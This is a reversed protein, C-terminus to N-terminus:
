SERSTTRSPRAARAAGSSAPRTSRRPVSSRWPARAGLRAPDLGSWKHGQGFFRTRALLTVMPKTFLFVVVIDILTILGLTQAFGKVDGVAFIYLLLAAIFSVTDSVIITRRARKWGSEVAGRLSRGERVEDRLREFFVIFSDATIGIAVILGAIGALSLTFGQYRSLLVVSLYALVAAIVLSSVSVIGLGRYYLFSYAVVLALGILGAILGANLQNKGLQPSVKNSQTPQFTLPLAGYNLENALQTAQTQGGINSIEVQGGPIAVTTEPASIVTGDLVIATQDLAANNPNTSATPYYKSVQTSTLDGFAKVAKGNLTLDVVWQNSTSNIGASAPHVDTGVVVAQGLVYKLGANSGVGCSVIQTNPNDWVPETYGIAALGQKPNACNLKNFLKMVSPTVASPDGAAQSAAPSSTASPSPTAPAKAAPSASASPSAAAQAGQTLTQGAASRGTGSVFAKTSTSASASPSAQAGTSSSPTPSPTPTASASPSAGSQAVLLVQRFRLQATTSVENIVQQSGQGPVSVNIIDNGVKQVQAGTSGSGNVRNTIITVAQDMATASPAQGKLTVAKLTVQTGSSLDLGLGIKFDKHWNSPSGLANGLIGILMVIILVALTALARGPKSGTRSPPAV